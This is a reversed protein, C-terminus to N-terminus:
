PRAELIGMARLWEAAREPWADSPNGRREMGYGHGGRTVLHVEAVVGHEVAAQAMDLTNRCSVPDDFSHAMFLPPTQPGLQRCPTCFALKEGSVDDKLIGAKTGAHGYPKDLSIVPYILLAFDPRASVADIDDAGEWELPKDWTTATMAALHGGASFGIVGIKAPDIGWQQAGHRLTRIARRAEILPVPFRLDDSALNSVRYKVVIGVMGHDVAWQAIQEGEKDIALMGYGGGPFICLAPRPGSAEGAPEWIRIVPQPIQTIHTPDLHVEQKAAPSHGPARGEWLPLWGSVRGPAGSVSQFCALALLACMLTFFKKM